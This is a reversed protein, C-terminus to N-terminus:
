RGRKLLRGPRADTLVGGDIVLIGNVLVYDMGEAYQMPDGFDARDRVGEPDFILLDAAM